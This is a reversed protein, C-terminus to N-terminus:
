EQKSHTLGQLIELAREADRYPVFLHDHYYAAVVNCSIGAHALAQSVAATLGVAELASHVNLTIWAGVFSYPLEMKDAQGKPLIVTVGERERFWCLPEFRAPNDQPALSCFVYEGANLEPEMNHILKELETEGTM